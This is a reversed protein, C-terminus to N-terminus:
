WTKICAKFFKKVMDERNHPYKIDLYAHCHQECKTFSQNAIDSLDYLITDRIHSMSGYVVCSAVLHEEGLNSLGTKGETIFLKFPRANGASTIYAMRIKVYKGKKKIRDCKDKNLKEENVLYDFLLDTGTVNSIVDLSKKARVKKKDSDDSLISTNEEAPKEQEVDFFSDYMAEAENYEPKKFICSLAMSNIYTIDEEVITHTAGLPHLLKKSAISALIGKHMDKTVPIELDKAVKALFSVNATMDGDTGLTFTKDQDVREEKTGTEMIDNFMPKDVSVYIDGNSIKITAQYKNQEM